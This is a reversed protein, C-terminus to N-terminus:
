RGQGVCSPSQRSTRATRSTLTVDLSVDVTVRYRWRHHEYAADVEIEAVLTPEVRSTRCRNLTSSSAQGPRPCCSPGRTPPGAPAAPTLM